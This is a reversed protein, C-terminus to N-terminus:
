AQIAQFAGLVQLKVSGSVLEDAQASWSFSKVACRAQMITGADHDVVAMELESGPQDHASLLRMLAPCEQYPRQEHYFDMTIEAAAPGAPVSVFEQASSGLSTVDIYDSQQSMEVSRILPLTDGDIQIELGHPPLPRPAPRAQTDVARVGDNEDNFGHAPPPAPQTEKVRESLRAAFVGAPIAAGAAAAGKLFDRRKM